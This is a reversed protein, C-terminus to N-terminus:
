DESPGFKNLAWRIALTLPLNIMTCVIGIASYYPYEVVTGDQVGEYLYYGVTILRTDKIDKGYFSFLAMQDTFIKAIAVTFFVIFTPYISPFVIHIFLSNYFFFYRLFRIYPILM